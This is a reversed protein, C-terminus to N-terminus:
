YETLDQNTKIHPHGNQPTPDSLTLTQQISNFYRTKDSYDNWLIYSLAIILLVNLM